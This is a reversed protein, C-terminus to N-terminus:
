EPVTSSSAVVFRWWERLKKGEPNAYPHATNHKLGESSGVWKKEGLCRVSYVCQHTATHANVAPAEAPPNKNEM